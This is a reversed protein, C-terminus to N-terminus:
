KGGFQVTLKADCVLLNLYAFPLAALAAFGSLIFVADNGDIGWGIFVVAMLTLGFVIIFAAFSSVTLYLFHGKTLALAKSLPRKEERAVMYKLPLLRGRYWLLLLFPASLGIGLATKEPIWDALFTSASVCGIFALYLAVAVLTRYLFMQRSARDFRLVDGWRLRSKRAVAMSMTTIGSTIGVALTLSILELVIRFGDGPLLVKAVAVAVSPGVLGVIGLAMFRWYVFKSSAAM